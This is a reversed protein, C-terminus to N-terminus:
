GKRCHLELLLADGGDLVDVILEAFDGRVVAPDAIHARVVGAEDFGDTLLEVRRDDHPRRGVAAVVGDSLDEGGHGRQVVVVARETTLRDGLDAASVGVVQVGALYDARKAFDGRLSHTLKHAPHAQSAGIVLALLTCVAAFLDVLQIRDGSRGKSVEDRM